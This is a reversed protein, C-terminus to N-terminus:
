IDRSRPNRSRTSCARWSNHASYDGRLVARTSNQITTSISATNDHLMGMACVIDVSTLPGLHSHAFNSPAASWM